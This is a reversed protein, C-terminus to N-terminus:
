LRIKGWRCTRSRPSLNPKRSDLLVYFVQFPGMRTGSDVM